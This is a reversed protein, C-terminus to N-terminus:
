CSGAAAAASADLTEGCVEPANNFADCVAIKMAEANRAVNAKVGNIIVTPSGSVGNQQAKTQAEAYLSDGQNNVCNMVQTSDIGLSTMLTTAETLDCEETRETSCKPYIDKVFGAAYDWYKEPYLEQICSEIKNEQAEYAGHGDYYPVIEFDAYDSLLTAVEAMPGQAQIGYPCYSWVYLEVKPRDSKPVESSTTEPTTTQTPLAIMNGFYKGDKTMHFKAEQGQIIATLEYIDGMDSVDTVELSVGQSEAYNVLKQTATSESITTFPVLSILVLVALLITVALTWEPNKSICKLVDFRKSSKKKESKKENAM